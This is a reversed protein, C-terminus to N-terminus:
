KSITIIIFANNDSMNNFLSIVGQRVRGAYKYNTNILGIKGDKCRSLKDFLGQDSKKAGKNDVTNEFERIAPVHSAQIIYIVPCFLKNFYDPNQFDESNLECLQLVGMSSKSSLELASILMDDREANLSHMM